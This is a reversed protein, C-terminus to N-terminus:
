ANEHLYIAIYQRILTDTLQPYFNSRKQDWITVALLIFNLTFSFM